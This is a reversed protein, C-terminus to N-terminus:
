AVQNETTEPRDFFFDLLQVAQELRMSVHGQAELMGQMHERLFTAIDTLTDIQEALAVIRPDETPVLQATRLGVVRMFVQTAVPALEEQYTDIKARFESKMSATQAGALWLAILDLRLCNVRQFGGKALTRTREIRRLQAQTSLGLAACIGPLSIYISGGPAMAAALDDGMFPVLQQETAQEEPIDDTGNQEM